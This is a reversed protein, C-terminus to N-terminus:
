FWYGLSFSIVSHHLYYTPLGSISGYPTVLTNVKIFNSLGASYNAALDLGGTIKFGAGVRLGADTANYNSHDTTSYSNVKPAQGSILQTVTNEFKFSSLFAVYVGANFYISRATNLRVMVPVELFAADLTAEEKYTTSYGAFSFSEKITSKAGKTSYLLHVTLDLKGTFGFKVAAGAHYGTQMTTSFGPMNSNLNSLNLGGAAGFEIKQSYASACSLLLYCVAFLSKCGMM